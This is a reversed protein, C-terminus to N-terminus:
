LIIYIICHIKTINMGWRGGRLKMEEEEEEEVSQSWNISLMYVHIYLLLHRSVKNGFMSTM